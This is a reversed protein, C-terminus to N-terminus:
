YYYKYGNMKYDNKIATIKVFLISTKKEVNSKTKTM